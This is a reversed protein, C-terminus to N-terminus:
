DKICRVCLGSNKLMTNRNIFDRYYSLHRKWAFTPSAETASWWHGFQGILQFTGSHTRYGGPLASFGTENTYYSRDTHWAGKEASKLKGDLQLSWGRAGSISVTAADLGINKELEMWEQDSPIHWGKPCLKGSNVAYWNYLAGLKEGLEKAKNQYFCMAGEGTAAWDRAEPLLPVPQGDNYHTVKLNEAMWIQNGIAVTEYSNGDYDTVSLPQGKTTYASLLFGILMASLQQYNFIFAKQM